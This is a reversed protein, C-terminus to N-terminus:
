RRPGTAGTSDPLRRSGDSGGQHSQGEPQANSASGRTTQTSVDHVKWVIQKVYERTINPNQLEAIIDDVGLHKRALARIDDYLSM